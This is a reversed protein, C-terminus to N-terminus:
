LITCSRKKYGIPEEDLKDLQSDISGMICKVVYEDHTFTFGTVKRQMHMIQKRETLYDDVVDVHDYEKDVQDFFDTVGNDDTCLIISMPFRQPLLRKTKMFNILAQRDPVGNTTPEGDTMVVILVKKESFKHDDLIHTLVDVLPTAGNPKVSFFADLDAVNKINLMHQSNLPYIDAGQSNTLTALEITTKAIAKCEDYRTKLPSTATRGPDEVLANMSTSDDIVFVIKYSELTRLKAAYFPSIDHESIFKQYAKSREEESQFISSKKEISPIIDDYAPPPASPHM